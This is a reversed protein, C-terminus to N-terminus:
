FSFTRYLIDMPGACYYNKYAFNVCLSLVRIVLLEIVIYLYKYKYQVLVCKNQVPADHKYM